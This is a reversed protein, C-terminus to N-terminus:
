KVGPSCNEINDADAAHPETAANTRQLRSQYSKMIIYERFVREIVQTATAEAGILQQDMILAIVAPKTVRVEKINSGDRKM